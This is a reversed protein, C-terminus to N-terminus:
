KATTWTKRPPSKVEVQLCDELAESYHVVGPPHHWCSGPGAIFEKGDIVLRLRGKILYSVSEHDPHAHNPDILGKERFVELLLMEEGVIVPRVTTRGHERVGEVEGIREEPVDSANIFHYTTPALTRDTTM